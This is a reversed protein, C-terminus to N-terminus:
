HLRCVQLTICRNLIAKKLYSKLTIVFKRFCERTLVVIEIEKFFCLIVQSDPIKDGLLALGRVGYFLSSLDASSSLSSTFVNRFSQLDRDTVYSNLTIAHLSNILLLSFVSIVIAGRRIMAIKGTFLLVESVFSCFKAWFKCVVKSKRKDVLVAVHLM